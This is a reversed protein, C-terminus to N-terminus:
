IDASADQQDAFTAYHKKEGTFLGSLFFGDRKCILGQLVHRGYGGYAHMVTLIRTVWLPYFANVENIDNLIYDPDTRM